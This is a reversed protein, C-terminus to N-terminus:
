GHEDDGYRPERGFSLFRGGRWSPHADEHRNQEGEGDSGIGNAAPIQEDIFGEAGSTAPTNGISVKRGCQPVLPKMLAGDNGMVRHDAAVKPSEKRIGADYGGAYISGAL